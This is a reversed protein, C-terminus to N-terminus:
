RDLHVARTLNRPTDPNMGRKESRRVAALHTAALDVMPDQGSELFTAGTARVQAALGEPAPGFCAVTRGEQAISLPGHRYEMAVYAETWSQSSERLKLAAEQALGESWGTGLFTIQEADVLSPDAEQALRARCQEIVPALDEGLSARLLALATTAFRTQVVSEEDAFDLVIEDDAHPAAPGGGVATLLLSREPRAQLADIIETTTGSRSLAIVRDYERAAPPESGPFADTIGHGTAERLHAYARGIYWSTGCGLILVREGRAPLTSAVVPDAALEAARAWTDPQTMLEIETRTM